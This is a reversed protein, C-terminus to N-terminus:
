QEKKLDIKIGLEKSIKKVLIGGEKSYIWAFFKAAPVHPISEVAEKFLEVAYGRRRYEPVTFASCFYLAEYKKQPRSLDLLKRESIKGKIFKEALKEQTPVVVIWSAPEGKEMKCIVTKLHPKQLKNYSELNVPIQESDNETGFFKEAVVMIKDLIIKDMFDM